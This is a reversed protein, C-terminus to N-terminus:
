DDAADSTYLLCISIYNLNTVSSNQKESFSELNVESHSLGIAYTTLRLKGYAAPNQLNIHISDAYMGLSGMMQNEITAGSRLDGVGFFSYPSVTANQANLHYALLCVM